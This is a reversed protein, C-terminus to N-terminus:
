ESTAPNLQASTLAADQAGYRALIDTLYGGDMLYQMAQQVAATLEADDKNIAVGQPASEIVDGVQEIHGGSVSATYGIVTSDAFTADYQGGIVKTAIDTQLDHPMITIKDQGAAM